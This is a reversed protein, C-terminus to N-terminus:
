PGLWSAHRVEDEEGDEKGEEEEVGACVVRVSRVRGVLVQDDKRTSGAKRVRAFFVGSQDCANESRQIDNRGNGRGEREM